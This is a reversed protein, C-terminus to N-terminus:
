GGREAQRDEGGVADAVGLLFVTLDEVDEGADAVVGREVAGAAEKRV